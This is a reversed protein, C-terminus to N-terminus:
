SGLRGKAWRMRHKNHEGAEAAEEMLEVAKDSLQLGHKKILEKTPSGPYVVGPKREEESVQKWFRTEKAQQRGKRPLMWPPTTLHQPQDIDTDPKGASAAIELRDMAGTDLILKPSDDVPTFEYGGRIGTTARMERGGIIRTPLITEDKKEDEPRQVEVSLAADEDEMEALSLLEAHKELYEERTMSVTKLFEPDPDPIKANSTRMRRAYAEEGRKVFVIEGKEGVSADLPGPTPLLKRSNGMGPLSIMKPKQTSQLLKRQHEPAPLWAVRHMEPERIAWLNVLPYIEKRMEKLKGRIGWEARHGIQPLMCSAEHQIKHKAYCQESCYSVGCCTECTLFRRGEDTSKNHCVACIQVPFSGDFDKDARRFSGDATRRVWIDDRILQVIHCSTVMTNNRSFPATMDLEILTSYNCDIRPEKGWVHERSECEKCLMYRDQWPNEPKEILTMQPARGRRNNRKHNLKLFNNLKDQRELAAEQMKFAHWQHLREEVTGELKPLAPITSGKARGRAHRLIRRPLAKEQWFAAALGALLSSALTKALIDAKGPRQSWCTFRAHRCVSVQEARTAPSPCGLSPHSLMM